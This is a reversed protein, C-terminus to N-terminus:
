GWLGSLDAVRRIRGDSVLEAFRERSFISPKIEGGMEAIAGRISEENVAYINGVGVYIGPEIVPPLVTVQWEHLRLSIGAETGDLVMVFTRHDSTISRSLKGRMVNGGQKSKVEIREGRKHLIVPADCCDFNM